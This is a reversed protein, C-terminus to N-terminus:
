NSPVTQQVELKFRHRETEQRLSTQQLESLRKVLTQIQERQGTQGSHRLAVILHYLATQDAPDYQLASQCQEIALNYQGSNIYFSALLDRAEVLNPKLKVAIQASAIAERSINSNQDSGQKELLKALLYHLLPSDPHIKLQLRVKSLAQEPHNKGLEALDTAYSSLSQSSNLKEATKFDAEAKDYEALQAYLSGRSIYLSPDDSIHRLGADIMDIGVQFSQHDLCLAAFSVYYNANTPNLVIAQRLLFVAKPTEGVAEYAESVLSLLEPDSQGDALMPELVKLAAENQKTEVLLVALDYKAYTSQPLLAALQEFVSIAKQPEKVQVLCYGYAELSDPHTGIVDSSFLFQKIAAPCNGEKRQLNALMEHATEDKSDAKLIRELLPIARKEQAQYLLQVEGKLAATNNPSLLLARDFAVLADRDSSKISLVIGKLAWLSPNNPAQRLASETAQLAQDYQHSRILSEISAISVGAEQVQATLATGVILLAFHRSTLM